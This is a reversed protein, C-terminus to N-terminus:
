LVFEMVACCSNVVHIQGLQPAWDYGIILAAKQDSQLIWESWVPPRRRALHVQFILCLITVWNICSITLHYSPITVQIGRSLSSIHRLKNRCPYLLLIILVINEWFISNSIHAVVEIVYISLCNLIFTDSFKCSIYTHWFACSIKHLLHSFAHFSINLFQNTSMSCSRQWSDPLLLFEFRIGTWSVEMLRLTALCQPRPLAAAPLFGLSWLLLVCHSHCQRIEEQCSSAPGEKCVNM